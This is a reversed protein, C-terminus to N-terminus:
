DNAAEEKALAIARDIVALVDAHTTKPDDNFKWLGAFGREEIAELLFRKAAIHRDYDDSSLPSTTAMIAGDLCWRCAYVNEPPVSSGGKALAFQGKIWNEPPELLNRIGTLDAIVDVSKM